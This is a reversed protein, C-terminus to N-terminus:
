IFDKGIYNDDMLQIKVFKKSKYHQKRSKM